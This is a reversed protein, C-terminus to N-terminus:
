AASKFEADLNFIGKFVKQVKAVPDGIAIKSTLPKQLYQAASIHHVHAHTELPCQVQLQNARVYEVIKETLATSPRGSKPDDDLVLDIIACTPGAGHPIVYM